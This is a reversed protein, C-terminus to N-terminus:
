GTRAWGDGDIAVEALDTGEYSPGLTDLDCVVVVTEGRYSDSIAELAGYTDARGAADVLDVLPASPVGLAEAVAAATASSRDDPSALVRVVRRERMGDVFEAARDAGVPRLLIETCACQLDSM